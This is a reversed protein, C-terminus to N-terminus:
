TETWRSRERTFIDGRSSCLLELSESVMSVNSTVPTAATEGSGGLRLVTRFTKIIHMGAAQVRKFSKSPQMTGKAAQSIILWSNKEPRSFAKRSRGPRLSEISPRPYRSVSIFAIMSLLPTPRASM